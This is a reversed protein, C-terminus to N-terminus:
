RRGFVQTLLALGNAMHGLSAPNKFGPHKPLPVGASASRDVRIVEQSEQWDSTRKLGDPKIYDLGEGKWTARTLTATCSYSEGYGLMADLSELWAGVPIAWDVVFSFPVLEWAVLLPNTVGSSALSILTENAPLADIRTYSSCFVEAYGVGHGINSPSGFTKSYIKTSSRSAKATVSWDSKNRKSLADCAGYVESLLPKWGYQIELWKQPVNSGRPQSRNSTIGLLNMAHRVRGQRLARYSKAIRTATDGLLRATKDREAFAVGLNVNLSKVRNRAAILSQNALSHDVIGNVPILEDFHNLSNFAGSAGGLCGAYRQGSRPNSTSTPNHILGFARTYRRKVFTYGTPPLWGSPKRRTTGNSSESSHSADSITYHQPNSGDARAVVLSAYQDRSFNGRAM